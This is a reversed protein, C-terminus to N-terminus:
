PWRGRRHSISPLPTEISLRVSTLLRRKGDDVFRSVIGLRGYPMTEFFTVVRCKEFHHRAQEARKAAENSNRKLANLLDNGPTQLSLRAIKAVIDGIDAFNGGRHPTGFFFVLRTAEGTSGYLKDNM